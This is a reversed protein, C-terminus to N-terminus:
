QQPKGCSVGETTVVRLVAAKRNISVTRHFDQSIRDFSAQMRAKNAGSAVIAKVIEGALRYEQETRLAGDFGDVMCKCIQSSNRERVAGRCTTFFDRAYSPLSSEYNPQPAARQVTVSGAAGIVLLTAGVAGGVILKNSM